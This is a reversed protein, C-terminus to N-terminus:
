DSIDLIIGQLLKSTGTRDKVVQVLDRLWLERDDFAIARYEIIKEQGLLIAVQYSDQELPLDKSHIYTEHFYAKNM